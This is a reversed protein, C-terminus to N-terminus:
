TKYNTHTILNIALSEFTTDNKLNTFLFVEDWRRTHTYQRMSWIMNCIINKHTHNIKENTVLM